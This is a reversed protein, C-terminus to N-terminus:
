CDPSFAMDIVGDGHGRFVREFSSPASWVRTTKDWSTSALAKGDPSFLVQAVGAAHGRLVQILEMRQANWIGVLGDEGGSLLLKDDPSFAVSKVPQSHARVSHVTNRELDWFRVSGDDAAAALLNDSASFAVDWLKESGHQLVRPLGTATDWLRLSGDLSTSALRDGRHSFTLARVRGEHGRFLKPKGTALDWVRITDDWGASALSRRDPSFSVISVTAQHGRLVQKLALERTSWVRVTKDASASALLAGDSSLAIDSIAGEHGWLARVSGNSLSWVHVMAGDADFFFLPGGDPSFLMKAVPQLHELSHVIGGTRLERIEVSKTDATAIMSGDPSFAARASSKIVHQAVGASQAEVVVDRAAQWDAGDVPYRKIWTLAATPDKDLSSRAQVLLLENRSAETLREHILRRASVLGMATLLALCVGGVAVTFHNRRVWRRVLNYSSYPHASVLEETLQKATPYRHSVDRAMAKDVITVLDDPVGRARRQLPVPPGQIVKEMIESSNPGDYPPVGALLHYLMAGIAYVDAREDVEKGEAQEAPMYEATGLVAGTITLRGNGERRSISVSRRTPAPSPSRPDALDVALGWDIVVTEGFAGILVNAPNLDRHIIRQSHAYSIADAVAIVNPLLALREQLTKKEEILEALSRGSVMKMAYYPKGSSAWRGLDQIPIIAPHQLRAIILAERMFRAEEDEDPRLLEKLAVSRKLRLDAAELIRGLGGRAHEGVVSYREGEAPGGSSATAQSAFSADRPATSSSESPKRAHSETTRRARQPARFNM